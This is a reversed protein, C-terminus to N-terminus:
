TASPPAAKETLRRMLFNTLNALHKVRAARASAVRSTCRGSALTKGCFMSRRGIHRIAPRSTITPRAAARTCPVFRTGRWSPARPLHFAASCISLLARNFNPANTEMCSTDALEVYQRKGTTRYLEILSMEIEPHGSIIPKQNPGPGYNPIVYNDVFKMGANMLTPDGSARYYAIAGQIMHGLCYLEHGVEQMHPTMREPIHDGQFYTNLYGSPEQVAVVERIMSDTVRRLEPRDGSQLAWGVAETWKYIDSDSYFPGTQAASSKGVLRRYNEMRGHQELQVRMTPISSEVNTKRRKSWFGEEITVARVPISHLKAYPSNALNLVGQDQWPLVAAAADGSGASAVAEPSSNGLAFSLAPRMLLSAATTTAAASLFRRRSVERDSNM